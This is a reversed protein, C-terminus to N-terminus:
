GELARAVADELSWLSGEDWAFQFALADLQSKVGALTQAHVFKVEPQVVAGLLQLASGVAGLLQAAFHPNNEQLALGAIAILSSTQELKEGSMVQLRLSHVIHQRAEDADEYLAALGLGLHNSAQTSKMDSAIAITLSEEFFRRSAPLDGQQLAVKGLGYLANAIGQKDGIEQSLAKADQYYTQALGNDGLAFAVQGLHYIAIALSHRDGIEQSLARCEDFLARAAVYEGQVLSIVGLNGCVAAYGRKDGMERQLALSEEFWARAVVYDGRAAEVNGLSNLSWAIGRRYGLERDIALSEEFLPHAENYDGEFFAMYGLSMLADAIKLRDGAERALRLGETAQQRGQQYEAKYLLVDAMGLFVQALGATDGSALRAQRSKELWELAPDYNGRLRNLRGLALQARAQLGLDDGSCNLAAFYEKEAESWKGQLELVDGRLAHIQAQEQPTALLPLLRGYYVLAADNAFTKQAAEGAKRLYERQKETNESHGYHFAITELQADANELYRALKEHLSARTAFPLSEYTVEHTVIHKFLYALEPEPSDLPTIDLTSLTDLTAKVQPFAGLEPYYGTLWEARFLRGIISAVRLATKQHEGLQDIRSLILTHLSDPLEIKQLDTANRPDFGRDRLYNLLEELFFPNGQARAMLKEVLGLPLAGTRTPYLQGLKARIASEAETNTLEHLEIKKFCPLAEISPSQLGDAQPPRYALVFCVAHNSLSKALQELLNHSLADVWHLDEIVILIPEDQAAAKLCDELLAHLASQRIQPELNTTFDNEPINLDLVVNLLPMADVRDPARDEIEGELNRVIKRLPQEPDIDFFAQWISKWAQYPTHIADSQCAGGFGIFGRKRASRIAEAVLRSKGLGAEAVIAVVQGQGKEALALKAEIIKLEQQRGVMPLSYNPEQLRVARKQNEGTVAFVPVPESKGKLALQPRPEFVFHDAVAKYVHSSLLIENVSATMMLRAALNVDDGLAGFTKRTEGGYAGVRMVGQSIGIQLQLDTKSRLALAAKVARSADDEHASLAGFNIYAYSGKDGITLQLFVGEYKQVIAQLQSIFADLKAQADDRAYDIGTFRVFLVACPRLETLFSGQSGQLRAYV